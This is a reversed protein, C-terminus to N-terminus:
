RRTAPSIKSKYTFTLLRSRHVRGSEDGEALDGAAEGVKLGRALPTIAPPAEPDVAQQGLVAGRQGNRFQAMDERRVAGSEPRATTCRTPTCKGPNHSHSGGTRGVVSPPPGAGSAGGHSM